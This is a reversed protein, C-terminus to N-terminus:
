KLGEELMRNLEESIRKVRERTDIGSLKNAYRLADNIMKQWRVENVVGVEILSNVVQEIMEKEEFSESTVFEFALQYLLKDTRKRLEVHVMARKVVCRVYDSRSPDCQITRDLTLLDILEKVREEIEEIIDKKKRGM